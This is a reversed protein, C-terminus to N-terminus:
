MVQLPEVPTSVPLTAPELFLQDAESRISHQRLASTAGPSHEILVKIAREKPVLMGECLLMFQSEVVRWDVGAAISADEIGTLAWEAFLKEVSDHGHLLSELANIRREQEVTDVCIQEAGQRVDDRSGGVAFHCLVTTSDSLLLKKGDLKLGMDRAIQRLREIQESGGQVPLTFRLTRGGPGCEPAAFLRKFIAREDDSVDWFKPIHAAIETVREVCGKVVDDFLLLVALADQEASLQPAQVSVEDRLLGNERMLEKIAVLVCDADGAGNAAFYIAPGFQANYEVTHQLAGAAVLKPEVVGRYDLRDLVGLEHDTLEVTCQIRTRTVVVAWPKAVESM